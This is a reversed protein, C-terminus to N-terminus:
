SILGVHCTQSSAAVCLVTVCFTKELPSAPTVFEQGHMGTKRKLKESAATSKGQLGLWCLLISNFGAKNNLPQKMGPQSCLEATATEVWGLLHHFPQCRCLSSEGHKHPVQTSWSSSVGHVHDQYPPPLHSLIFHSWFTPGGWHSWISVM